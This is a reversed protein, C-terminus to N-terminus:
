KNLLIKNMISGAAAAGMSAGSENNMKEKLLERKIELQTELEHYEHLLNEIQEKMAAKQIEMAALENNLAAVQTCNTQMVKDLKLIIFLAM